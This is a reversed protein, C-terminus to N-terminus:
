AIPSGRFIQRAEKTEKRITRLANHTQQNSRTRSLYKVQAETETTVPSKLKMRINNNKKKLTLHKRVLFSLHQDFQNKIFKSKKECDMKLKNITAAISKNNRGLLLANNAHLVLCSSSFFLTLNESASIFLSKYTSNSNFCFAHSTYEHNM